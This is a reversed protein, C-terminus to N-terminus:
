GNCCENDSRRPGRLLPKAFHETCIIQGDKAFQLARAAFNIGWGVVNTRGNMDAVIYNEGKNVGLNVGHYKQISQYIDVLHKLIELDSHNESFAIIYGDGTSRLLIDNRSGEMQGRTREDWYFHPDMVLELQKEMVVVSTVLEMNSAADTFGILDFIAVVQNRSIPRKPFGFDGTILEKKAM